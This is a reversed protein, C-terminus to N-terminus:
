QSGPLHHISDPHQKRFERAEQEAADERGTKQLARVKLVEREETLVGRPYLREHQAILTLSKSPNDELAARAQSLLHAESPKKVVHTSAEAAKEASAEADTEGADAASAVPGVEPAVVQTQETSSPASIAVPGRLTESEGSVGYLLGGGAVVAGLALTKVLPSLWLGSGAVGIKAGLAAKDASSPVASKAQLLMDRMGEPADEAFLWREPDSM